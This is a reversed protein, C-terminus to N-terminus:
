QESKKLKATSKSESRNLSKQIFLDGSPIGDGILMHNEPNGGGDLMVNWVVRNKNLSASLQIDLITVHNNADVKIQDGKDLALAQKYGKSTLFPHESTVTVSNGDSTIIKLLPMTEPGKIVYLVPVAKGTLPNLVADGTELESIEKKSRDAMTILTSEDFCGCEGRELRLFRSWCHPRKGSLLYLGAHENDQNQGNGCIKGDGRITVKQSKSTYDYYSSGLDQCNCNTTKDIDFFINGEVLVDSAVGKLRIDVSFSEDLNINEGFKDIESRINLVVQLANRFDIAKKKLSEFQNKLGQSM